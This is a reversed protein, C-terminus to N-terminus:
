DCVQLFFSSYTRLLYILVTIPTGVWKKSLIWLIDFKFGAPKLTSNRKALLALLLFILFM